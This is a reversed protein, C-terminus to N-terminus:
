KSSVDPTAGIEEVYINNERVYAVRMGDPSFKAFMLSSPKAEPGGLKHLKWNTLDLIWYDGRTNSRWVRESNTFMLVKQEDPTFVFDEITLPTNLGAPLLKNAAVKITRTGTLADYRVIEPVDNKDPPRELALYGSGDQQWQVPGLSLTQFTFISDLTLLSPDSQQATQQATISAALILLLLTTVISKHRM